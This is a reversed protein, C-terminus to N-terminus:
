ATRPNGDQPFIGMARASESKVLPERDGIEEILIRHHAPLPLEFFERSIGRFDDNRFREIKDSRLGLRLLGGKRHDPISGRVTWPHTQFLIELEERIEIVLRLVM